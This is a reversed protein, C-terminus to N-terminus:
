SSLHFLASDVFGVKIRAGKIEDDMLRVANEECQGCAIYRGGDSKLHQVHGSPCSYVLLLALGLARRAAARKRTRGHVCTFERISKCTPSDEFESFCCDTIEPEMEQEKGRPPHFPTACAMM